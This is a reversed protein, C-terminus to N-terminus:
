CKEPHNTTKSCARPHPGSRHAVGITEGNCTDAFTKHRKAIVENSANNGLDCCKMGGPGDFQDGGAAFCAAATLGGSLRYDPVCDKTYNPDGKLIFTVCRNGAEWSDGEALAVRCKKNAQRFM